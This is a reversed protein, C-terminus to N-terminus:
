EIEITLSVGATLSQEGPAIPVNGGSEMAMARAYVPQPWTSGSESISMIRGLAMGAAGVYIKAKRLADAVAKERAQDLLAEPEDIDFRINNLRNSGVAVVKDLIEGTRDLDRIKVTLQNTVQYGRIVPVQDSSSPRSPQTYVAHISFQSTQYDKEEISLEKLVDFIANMAATNADLAERATKAESDVGMDIWAVDPRATINGTGSITLLRPAEELDEAAIAGSVGFISTLALTAAILLMPPTAPSKPFFRFPAAM